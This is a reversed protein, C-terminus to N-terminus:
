AFGKRRRLADSADILCDSFYPSLSKLFIVGHLRPYGRRFGTDGPIAAQSVSAIDNEVTAGAAYMM